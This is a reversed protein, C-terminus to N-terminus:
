KFPLEDSGPSTFQKRVDKEADHCVRDICELAIQSAFFRLRNIDQESGFQGYGLATQIRRLGRIHERMEWLEGLGWKIQYPMETKEPKVETEM